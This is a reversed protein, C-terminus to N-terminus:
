YPGVTSWSFKKIGNDVSAQGIDIEESGQQMILFLSSIFKFPRKPGLKEIARKNRITIM